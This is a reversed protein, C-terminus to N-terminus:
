RSISEHRSCRKCKDFSGEWLIPAFDTTYGKAGCLTKYTRVRGMKTIVPIDLTVEKWIHAKNGSLAMIGWGEQDQKVGVTISDSM